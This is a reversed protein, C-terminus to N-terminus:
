EDPKINDRLIKRINIDDIKRNNDAFHVEIEEMTKGETEPLVLYMM